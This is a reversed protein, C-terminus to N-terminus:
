VFFRNQNHPRSLGLFLNYNCGQMDLGINHSQYPSQLFNRTFNAKFSVPKLDAEAVMAAFDSLRFNLIASTM